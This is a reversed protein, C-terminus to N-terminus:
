IFKTTMHGVKCDLDIMVKYGAKHIKEIFTFDVHNARELGDDRLHAEYWPAPIKELVERHYFLNTHPFPIEVVGSLGKLDKKKLVMGDYFADFALPIPGNQTGRDNIMPGAVKYRNCLPVLREFYDSPYSQDVDMKALITCDSKLFQSIIANNRVVDWPHTARYIEVPWRNQITIFSWFFGSPVFAQTNCIGIFIKTKTM